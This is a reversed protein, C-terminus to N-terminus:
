ADHHNLLSVKNRSCARKVYDLMRMYSIKGEHFSNIHPVALERQKASLTIGELRLVIQDATVPSLKPKSTIIM